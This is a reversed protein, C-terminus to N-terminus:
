VCDLNFLIDAALNSYWYPPNKLPKTDKLELPNQAATILPANGHIGRGTKAFGSTSDNLIDKRFDSLPMSAGISLGVNQRNIGQGIVIQSILILLVVLKKM